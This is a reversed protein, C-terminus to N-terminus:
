VMMIITFLADEFLSIDIEFDNDHQGCTKEVFVRWEGENWKRVHLTGFYGDQDGDPVTIVAKSKKAMMSLINDLVIEPWELHELTQTCFIVDYNRGVLEYLDHNNFSIKHTNRKGIDLAAKCFDYGALYFPKYNSQLHMLLHGTSCGMDAIFQDDYEVGKNHALKVVDAYFKLRELSIYDAVYDPNSFLRETYRRTNHQLADTM